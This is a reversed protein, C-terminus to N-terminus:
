PAVLARAQTRADAIARAWVAREARAADSAPAEFKALLAPDDAQAASVPVFGALSRAREGKDSHGDLSRVQPWLAKLEDHRSTIMEDFLAAVVRERRTSKDPDYAFRAVQDFPRPSGAPAQAYTGPRAPLRAIQPAFLLAQGDDSLLFAVFDRAAQVHAADRTVAVQAPVFATADPTVFDVPKGEAKASRVFFDITLGIGKTGEALDNVLAVGGGGDLLQANAAIRTLISWGQDWGYAQLIVEIMPPAFGIVSPVPLVVHGAYAKAALDKWERPRSLHHAALYDDRVAFGFSAVEFAAYRGQPDSIWQNGLRRPLGAMLDDISQFAGEAALLPFAKMAPSWFVDIGGQGPKRMTALADPTHGWTFDLKVEPHRQAYAQEFQDMMEQPYSTFVRVTEAAQASLSALAALAFVVVSLRM